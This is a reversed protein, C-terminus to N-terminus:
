RCQESQYPNKIGISSLLNIEIKEMRKADQAEEHNFGL